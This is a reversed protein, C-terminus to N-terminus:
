SHYKEIEGEEAVEEGAIERYVSVDVSRLAGEQAASLVGVNVQVSNGGGDGDEGAFSDPLRQRGMYVNARWQAPNKGALLIARNLELGLVGLAYEFELYFSHFWGCTEVQGKALWAEVVGPKLRALRAATRVDAGSRIAKIVLDVQGSTTGLPIEKLMFEKLRREAPMDIVPADGAVADPDYAPRGLTSKPIVIDKNERCLKAQDMLKEFDADNEIKKAM